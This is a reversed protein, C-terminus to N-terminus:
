NTHLWCGCHTAGPHTPHSLGDISMGQRSDIANGCDCCIPIQHFQPLSWNTKGFQDMRFIYVDPVNGATLKHTLKEVKMSGFGPYVDMIRYANNGIRFYMGSTILM